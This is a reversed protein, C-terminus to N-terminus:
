SEILPLLYMITFYIGIIIFTAGTVRRFWIEIQGMRQFARGISQAGFSLLIAFVIVPIGTGLGYLAPLTIQSDYTLSLPILSGFFLAASVPCFSLAFVVGMVFAGCLGPSRENGGSRRGWAPNPLEFRVVELLVLGTLILLPGLVKNMYKQLLYSVEPVSVLFTVILIGLGIYLLMRGLTYAIGSLLVLSPRSVKRGTFSIAAINTAMPCPSMSTLIGLWFASLTGALFEM